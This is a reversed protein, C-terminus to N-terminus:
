CQSNFLIFYLPPLPALQVKKLRLCENLANGCVTVCRPNIWLKWTVDLFMCSVDDQGMEEAAASFKWHHFIFDQRGLQWIGRQRYPRNECTASEDSCVAQLHTLTILQLKLDSQLLVSFTSFYLIKHKLESDASYSIPAWAAVILYSTCVHHPLTV